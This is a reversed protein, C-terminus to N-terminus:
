TLAAIHRKTNKNLPLMRLVHWLRSSILSNLVTARGRVSLIRSCTPYSLYIVAEPSTSDHWTTINQSALFNKWRLNLKSSLTIDTTKNFSLEANSALM